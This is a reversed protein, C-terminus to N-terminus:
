WTQTHSLTYFSRDAEANYGQIRVDRFEAEPYGELEFPWYGYLCLNWQNIKLDACVNLFELWEGYDFLQMDFGIRGFGSYWTMCGSISRYKVSPWDEISCLGFVYGGGSKVMLQKLTSFANLLRAPAAGYLLGDREM